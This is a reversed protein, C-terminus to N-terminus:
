HDETPISALLFCMELLFEPSPLFDVTNKVSTLSLERM